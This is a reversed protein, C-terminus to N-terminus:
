QFNTVIFDLASNDMALDYSKITKMSLYNVGNVSRNLYPKDVMLIFVLYSFNM